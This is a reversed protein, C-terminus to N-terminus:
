ATNKKSMIEPSDESMRQEFSQKDALWEFIRQKAKNGFVQELKDRDKSIPEKNKVLRYSSKPVFPLTLAVKFM